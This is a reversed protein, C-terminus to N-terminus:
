QSLGRRIKHLIHWANKQTIGLDRALQCSSIGKKHNGIFWIAMMWKVLPLKTNDFITGGLLTFYEKCNACKFRNGAKFRYIKNHGCDACRLEGGWRWQEIYDRCTQEDKFYSLLEHLSKFQEPSKVELSM